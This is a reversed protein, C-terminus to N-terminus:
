KNTYSLVQKYDKIDLYAPLSKLKNFIVIKLTMAGPAVTQFDTDEVFIEVQGLYVNFQVTNVWGDEDTIAPLPYFLDNQKIYIMVAGNEMVDKTIDPIDIQSYYQWGLSGYVGRTYWQNSQITYTFHELNANGNPSDDKTCATIIALSTAMLAISLFRKM